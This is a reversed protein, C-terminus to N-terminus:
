CQPSTTLRYGVGRITDIRVQRSLQGIKRRLSSLHVELTNSGAFSSFEWILDLIAYRNIVCNLNNALFKLLQFERRRLTLEQGSNGKLVQCDVNIELDGLTVNNNHYQNTM